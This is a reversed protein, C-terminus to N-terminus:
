GGKTEAAFNEMIQTTMALTDETFQPSRKFQKLMYEYFDALEEHGTTRLTRIIVPGSRPTMKVFKASSGYSLAPFLAPDIVPQTNADAINALMTEITDLRDEISAMVTATIDDALKEAGVTEGTRPSAGFAIPAELAKGIRELNAYSPGDRGKGAEYNSITSPDLGSEQALRTQSWGREQRRARIMDGARMAASSLDHARVREPDLREMDEILETDFVPKARNTAVSEEARALAAEFEADDRDTEFKGM